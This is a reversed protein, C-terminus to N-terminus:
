AHTGNAKYLITWIVGNSTNLYSYDMALLSNNSTSYKNIFYANVASFVTDNILIIKALPVTVNIAVPPISPSTINNVLALKLCTPNSGVSFEYGPQCSVCLNGQQTM